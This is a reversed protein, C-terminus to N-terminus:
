VHARGIGESTTAAPYIVDWIRYHNCVYVCAGDKVKRNGYFRFPLCLWFVPIVIARLFNLLPMVHRGKKDAAVTITRAKAEKKDSQEAKKEEM